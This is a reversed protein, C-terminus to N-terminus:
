GERKTAVRALFAERQAEVEPVETGYLHDFATDPKFQGAAKDEYSKVAAAVEAKLEAQMAAEKDADWIGKNELYLRTRILPEREWAAKEEAPDRYKKPDDATTHMMLRYTVTEILSPGGGGKARDLAADVALYVALPDNGDVQVGEFGYAIAKQAITESRTQKARPHSIAWQNNQCIFVVPADWVGAFNLAEHFDGQSTAGDGVFAVVASGEEGKYKMAYAVGVANPLQSGLVVYTPLVRKEVPLANGEEFGGYYLLVNEIPEGRMLKAGLERYTGAMWDRDGMALAAGCVSAEQGTNPPFTGMRGQRQLKLMRQDVERALSMNRYLELLQQSDLNPELEPDVEGKENLVQTYSVSYSGVQKKPM